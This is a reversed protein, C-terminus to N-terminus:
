DFEEEALAERLRQEQEEPLTTTLVIAELHRMRELVQDANAKKVLLFLASTNPQVWRSVENVFGDDLGYDKLAGTIAGVAAGGVLGVIPGGLLLGALLGAGSGRLAYKGTDSHTQQIEVESGGGRSAVVADELEILGEEQLKVIDKLMAEAAYQNKFGLVVINSAM